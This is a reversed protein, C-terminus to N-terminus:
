KISYEPHIAIKISKIGNSKYKLDKGKRRNEYMYFFLDVSKFLEITKENLMRDNEGIIMIRKNTLDDLSHVDKAFLSPYYMELIYEQATATATLVNEALCMYINNGIIEGSNLLLKANLTSLSKRQFEDPRTVRFPNCVYPYENEVIFLNQGLAKAVICQRNELNLALIDDYAYTEKEDVVIRENEINLFFDNINNQTLEIKKNQTLTQYITIPNLREEKLCYLYIEEFSIRQKFENLIKLKIVAITDDPHIRQESFEVDIKNKLINDLEDKEFINQFKKDLPNQAFLQKLKDVSFSPYSKGYFVHIKSITDNILYNIKYM